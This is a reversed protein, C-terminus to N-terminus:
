AVQKVIKPEFVSVMSTSLMAICSLLVRAKVKKFGRVNLNKLSLYEKLRGFCREVSTRKNYIKTWNKSGRHPTNFRRPDDKVRTKVVLGYNSSSCWALGHPCNVKGLVHPCRFKNCGNKDSGWYIMPYGGSCIPTGNFDLGEPPMKAGRLNLPIIGQSNYEHYLTAYIEKIDYGSDMTWHKPYDKKVLPATVKEVLPLAEMSDSRSAPTLNVALPMESKCDVALHVKWGFWTIQNGHSDKKSGWDPQTGDQEITKKPKARERSELKTADIAVCNGDITGQKRLQSVLQQFYQELLENESIAKFLRSFTSVSPAQSAIPFGCAFRFVPDQSLRETLATFNPIREIVMAFLARLKAALSYGNPGLSSKEFNDIIPSLDLTHFIKELRTEPQLKMIEDFSFLCQQQIYL